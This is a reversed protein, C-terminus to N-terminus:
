SWARTAVGSSAIRAPESRSTMPRGMVAAGSGPAAADATAAESRRRARVGWGDAVAVWQCGGGVSPSGGRGSVPVRWLWESAGGCGGASVVVVAGGGGAPTVRGRGRGASVLRSLRHASVLRGSACRCGRQIVATRGDAAMYYPGRCAELPLGIGYAPAGFRALRYACFAIRICMM